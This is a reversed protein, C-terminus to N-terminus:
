ARKRKAQLALRAFLLTIPARALGSTVLAVPLSIMSGIAGIFPGGTMRGVYNIQNDLSLVTARVGSEINQNMWATSIPSNAIRLSYSLCYVTAALWFNGALGFVVMGITSASSMFMLTRVIITQDSVDVRRRIIEIELLVMLSVVTRIGNIWIVPELNGLAPFAINELMNATWLSDFGASSLGAVASIVLMTILVSRGRVLQVGQGFTKFLTRWSEREQPPVPQFGREPMVRMLGLTLLGYLAGALLMPASLALSGLTAGLPISALIAIQAIQSGRMYVPGVREEGIEDAIWADLAGSLLADGLGLIVMGSLVLFYASFAGVFFSGFGMVAFGLIVSLRRSYVDAIVGTPIELLLVSTQFVTWIFVLQFPDGTVRTAFYVMQVAAFLGGILKDAGIILLYMTSPDLKRTKM